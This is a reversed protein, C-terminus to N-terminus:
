RNELGDCEVARGGRRPWFQNAFTAWRLKPQLWGNYTSVGLRSFKLPSQQAFAVAARIVGPERIRNDNASEGRM